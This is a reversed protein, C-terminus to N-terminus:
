VELVPRVVDAAVLHELAAGRRGREDLPDRLERLGARRAVVGLEELLLLGVVRLRLADLRPLLEHELLLDLLRLVLDVRGLHALVEDVVLHEGAQEVDRRRDVVDLVLRHGVRVRPVGVHLHEVHHAAIGLEAPDEEVHVRAVALVLM